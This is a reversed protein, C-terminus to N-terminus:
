LATLEGLPLLWRDPKEIDAPLDDALARARFTVERQRSIPFGAMAAGAPGMPLRAAAYAARTRWVRWLLTRRAAVDDEPVVLESVEFHDLVDDRPSQVARGILLGRLAGDAGPLTTAVYHGVPAEVYRWRLYALTRDTAVLRRPVSRALLQEVEARQDLVQEAPPLRPDPIDRPRPHRRSRMLRWPSLPAYHVTIPEAESFGVRRTTAASLDNGHNLHVDEGVRDPEALGATAIATGIGRRQHDPHVAMDMDWGADLRRDGLRLRWPMSTAFGVVRGAALAVWGRSRGFPGHEHKWRFRERAGELRWDPLCTRLVDLVQGEDAPRYRRVEIGSPPQGATDVMAADDWVRRGACVRRGLVPPSM